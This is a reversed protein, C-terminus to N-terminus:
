LGGVGQFDFDFFFFERFEENTCCRVRYQGDGTKTIVFADKKIMGFLDDHQKKTLIIEHIWGLNSMKTEKRGEPKKIIWFCSYQGDGTKTIVFADEPKKPEQPNEPKKSEQPKEPEKAPIPTETNETIEFDEM